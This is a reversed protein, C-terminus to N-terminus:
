TRVKSVGGQNDVMVLEGPVINELARGMIASVHSRQGAIAEMNQAWYILAKLDEVSVKVSTSSRRRENIAHHLRNLADEPISM